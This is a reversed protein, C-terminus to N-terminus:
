HGMTEFGQLVFCYSDKFDAYKIKKRDEAETAAVGPYKQWSDVNSAALTVDWILPTSGSKTWNIKTWGTKTWRQKRGVRSEDLRTKDM